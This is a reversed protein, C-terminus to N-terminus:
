IAGQFGKGVQDHPPLNRHLGNWHICSGPIYESTGHQRDVSHHWLRNRLEDHKPGPHNHDRGRREFGQIFGCHLQDRDDRQDCKHDRPCEDRLPPWVLPGQSIRRCGWLILAGPVLLLSATFLWLKHEPEQNGGNCKALKLGLKDGFWGSYLAGTFTGILPAFYSLGVM